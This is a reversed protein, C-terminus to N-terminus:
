AIDCHCRCGDAHVPTGSRDDLRDCEAPCACLFAERVDAFEGALFRREGEEKKAAWRARRREDARQELSDGPQPLQHDDPTGARERNGDRLDRRRDFTYRPQRRYHRDPGHWWREDSYRTDLHAPFRRGAADRVTNEAMGAIERGNGDVLSLRLAAVEAIRAVVSLPLDRAGSEASGVASPSIGVAVALERQSLDTIRRVRRLVGPLSLATM